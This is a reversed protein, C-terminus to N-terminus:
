LSPPLPLLGWICQEKHQPCIAVLRSCRPDQMRGFLGTRADEVLASIGLGERQGNEDGNAGLVEAM